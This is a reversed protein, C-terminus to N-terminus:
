ARGRRASRDNSKVVNTGEKFRKACAISDPNIFKCSDGTISCTFWDDLSFVANRCSM